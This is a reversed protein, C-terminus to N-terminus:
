NTASDYVDSAFHYEDVINELMADWMSHKWCTWYKVNFYAHNLNVDSKNECQKSLINIDGM